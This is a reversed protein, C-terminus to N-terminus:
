YRFHATATGRDIQSQALRTEFHTLTGETLLRATRLPRVFGPTRLYEAHKTLLTETSVSLQYPGRRSAARAGAAVALSPPSNKIVVPPSYKIVVSLFPDDGM